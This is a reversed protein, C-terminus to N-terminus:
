IRNLLSQLLGGSGKKKSTDEQQMKEYANLEDAFAERTFEDGSQIYQIRQEPTMDSMERDAKKKTADVMISRRAEPTEAEDYRKNIDYKEEAEYRSLGDGEEDMYSSIAKDKRGQDFERVRQSLNSEKLEKDIIDRSKKYETDRKSESERQENILRREEIVNERDKRKARSDQMNSLLQQAMAQRRDNMRNMDGRARAGAVVNMFAM